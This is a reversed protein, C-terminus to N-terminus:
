VFRMRETGWKVIAKKEFAVSNIVYYGLAYNIQTAAKVILGEYNTGMVDSGYIFTITYSRFVPSVKTFPFFRETIIGYYKDLAQSNFSLLYLMLLTFRKRM